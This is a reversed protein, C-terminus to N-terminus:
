YLLYIDNFTWLDIRHNVIWQREGSPIEHAQGIVASIGVIRMDPGTSRKGVRIHGRALHFRGANIPDLVGVLAWWHVGAGESLVNRIEFLAFVRV